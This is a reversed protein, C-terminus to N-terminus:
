KKMIASFSFIQLPLFEREARYFSGYIDWCPKMPIHGGGTFIVVFFIFSTTMCVNGVATWNNNHFLQSLEWIRAMRM